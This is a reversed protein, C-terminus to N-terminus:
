GVVVGGHRAAFHPRFDHESVLRNCGSLKRSGYKGKDESDMLFIIKQKTNVQKNYKYM